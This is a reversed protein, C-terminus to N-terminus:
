HEGKRSFPGRGFKTGVLWVKIGVLVTGSKDDLVFCTINKRPEHPIDSIEPKTLAFSYLCYMFSPLPPPCALYLFLKLLEMQGTKPIPSDSTVGPAIGYCRM